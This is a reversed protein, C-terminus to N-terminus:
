CPSGIKRGGSDHTRKHASHAAGSIAVTLHVDHPAPGDATAFSPPRSGSSFAHACNFNILM